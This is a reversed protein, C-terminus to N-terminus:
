GVNAHSGCENGKLGPGREIIKKQDEMMQKYTEGLASVWNQGLDSTDM